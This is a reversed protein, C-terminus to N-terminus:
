ALPRPEAAVSDLASEPPPALGPVRALRLRPAPRRAGPPPFRGHLLPNFQAAPSCLIKRRAAPRGRRRRAIPRFKCDPAQYSCSDLALRGRRGGEETARVAGWGTTERPSMRRGRNTGAQEVGPAAWGREFAGHSSAGPAAPVGPMPRRRRSLEGAGSGRWESRQAEGDVGGAAAATDRSWGVMSGGDRIFMGSAGAEIRAGCRPGRRPPGRRKGPATSAVGVIARARRRVLCLGASIGGSQVAGAVPVTGGAIGSGFRVAERASPRLPFRARAGAQLSRVRAPQTSVAPEAAGSSPGATSPTPDRRSCAAPEEAFRM